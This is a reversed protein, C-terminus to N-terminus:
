LRIADGVENEEQKIGEGQQGQGNQPHGQQGPLQQGQQQMQQQQQQMQQQQLMPDMGGMAMAQQMAQLQQPNFPMGAMNMEMMPNPMHLLNAVEPTMQGMQM